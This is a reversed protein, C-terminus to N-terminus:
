RIYALVEAYEAEDPSVEFRQLDETDRVAITAVEDLELVAGQEDNAEVIWSVYWAGPVSLRLDLEREGDFILPGTESRFFWRTRSPAHGYDEEPAPAILRIALRSPSVPLELAPPISLRVPIGSRMEIGQQDELVPVTFTRLGRANLEARYSGRPVVFRARGGRFAFSHEEAGPDDRSVLVLSGEPVSRGLEDTIELDFSRVVCTLDIERLRPDEALAGSEVRIGTVELIPERLDDLHVQISHLGAPVRRLRFHGGADVCRMHRPADYRRRGADGDVGIRLRGAELGAPLALSGAIAGARPLPLLVEEVAADLTLRPEPGFGAKEATLSLTADADAAFVEFRGREDTSVSFKLGPPGSSGAYGLVEGRGGGFVVDEEGGAEREPSNVEIRVSAGCVGSGADDVVRGRLRRGAPTLVADGLDVEASEISRPWEWRGLWPSEDSGHLLLFRLHREAGTRRTTPVPIAFRGEADSRLTRERPAEASGRARPIVYRCTRDALPAGAEDVLRGRALPSDDVLRISGQVVENVQRPGAVSARVDRAVGPGAPVRLSWRRGVPLGAITLRGEEIPGFFSGQGPPAPGPGRSEPSLWVGPLSGVPRGAEDEFRLTLTGSPPMQLVVPEEPMSRPDVEVTERAGPRDPRLRWTAGQRTGEVLEDLNALDVTDDPGMGRSLFRTDGDHTVYKLQVGIGPIPAGDADVVRVRLPQSRTRRVGIEVVGPDDPECFTRGHRDGHRAFVAITGAPAPADVRGAEDAILRRGGAPLADRLEEASRLDGSADAVWVSAGSVPERTFVDVVRLAVSPPTVAEEEVPQRQGEPSAAIGPREDQRETTTADASQAPGALPGGAREREGSWAQLGLGLGIAVVVGAAALGAGPLGIAVPEVAASPGDLLPAIGALWRRGDGGAERDLRERLKELARRLRTKVTAVPVGERRAIETPSLDSEYRLLVAARYPEELALVAEVVRQRLEVREVLETASVGETVGGRAARAERAQRRGEARRRNGARRRLTRALWSRADLPPTARRELAALWADQELDEAECAGRVLRRALGRVFSAHEM